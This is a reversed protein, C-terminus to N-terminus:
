HKIGFFNKWRKKNDKVWERYSHCGPRHYYRHETNDCFWSSLLKGEGDTMGTLFLFGLNLMCNDFKELEKDHGYKYMFTDYKCQQYMVHAVMEVTYGNKKWYYEEPVNKEVIQRKEGLACGLLMLALIFSIFLKKKM